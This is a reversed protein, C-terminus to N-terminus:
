RNQNAWRKSMFMVMLSPAVVVTPVMSVGRRTGDRAGPKWKKHKAITDIPEHLAATALGLLRDLVDNSTQGPKDRGGRHNKSQAGVDLGTQGSLITPPSEIQMTIGDLM